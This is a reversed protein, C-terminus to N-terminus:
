AMQSRQSQPTSRALVRPRQGARNKGSGTTRGMARSESIGWGGQDRIDRDGYFHSTMIISSKHCRGGATESNGLCTCMSRTLGQRISPKPMGQWRDPSDVLSKVSYVEPTM